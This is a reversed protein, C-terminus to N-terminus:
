PFLADQEGGQPNPRISVTANQVKFHNILPCLGVPLLEESMQYGLPQVRALELQHDAIAARTQMCGYSSDEWLGDFMLM